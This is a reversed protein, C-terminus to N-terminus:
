HIVFQRSLKENEAIVQLIYIGSALKLRFTETHEGTFHSITQKKIIEGTGTFFLLEIKPMARGTLKVKFTGDNPNPFLVTNFSPNQAILSAEVATKRVNVTYGVSFSCGNEDSVTLIYDTTDAPSAIPTLITSDTITTAPEWQYRYAGTGGFVALGAGLEISAGNVITTDTKNVSFGFESPQNVSLYIIKQSFLLNPFILLLSIFINKM